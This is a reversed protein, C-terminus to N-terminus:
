GNCRIRVISWLSVASLTAYMIGSIPPPYNSLNNLAFSLLCFAISMRALVRLVFHPRRPWLVIILDYGGLSILVVAWQGQDLVRQMPFYVGAYRTFLDPFLVLHLGMLVFAIGMAFDLTSYPARWLLHRMRNCFGLCFSQQRSM